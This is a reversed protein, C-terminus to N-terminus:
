FTKLTFMNYVQGIALLMQSAPWLLIHLRYTYTYLLFDYVIHFHLLIYYLVFFHISRVYLRLYM